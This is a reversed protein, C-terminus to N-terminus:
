KEAAKEAQKDSKKEFVNMLSVRAGGKKRGIKIGRMLVRLKRKDNLDQLYLKKETFNFYPVAQTM